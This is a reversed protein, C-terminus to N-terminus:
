RDGTQSTGAFEFLEGSVTRMPEVLRELCDATAEFHPDHLQETKIGSLCRVLWEDQDKGARRLRKLLAEDPEIALLDRVLQIAAEPDHNCGNNM